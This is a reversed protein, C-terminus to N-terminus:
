LPSLLILIAFQIIIRVQMFMLAVMKKGQNYNFLLIMIRAQLYCITNNDGQRARLLSVTINNKSVHRKIGKNQIYLCHCQGLIYIVSEVITIKCLKYYM